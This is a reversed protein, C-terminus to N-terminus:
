GAGARGLATVLATLGFTPDLPLGSFPPRSSSASVFSLVGAVVWTISQLRGVPIGLMSARDRRDGAAQVAIGIDSKTFWLSVGALCAVSVIVAVLDNANLVM